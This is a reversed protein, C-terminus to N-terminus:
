GISRFSYPKIYYDNIIPNNPIFIFSIEIDISRNCLNIIYNNWLESKNNRKNSKTFNPKLNNTLKLIDFIKNLYFGYDITRIQKCKYLYKIFDDFMIYIKSIDDNNLIINDGKSMNMLSYTQRYNKIGRTKLFEYVLTSTISKKDINNDELMKEFDNHNIDSINNHSIERIVNSFHIKKNNYPKSKISIRKSTTTYYSSCDDCFYLDNNKNIYFSNCYKCKDM